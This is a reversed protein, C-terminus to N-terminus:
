GQSLRRPHLVSAEVELSRVELVELAGLFAAAAV